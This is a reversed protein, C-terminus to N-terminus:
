ARIAERKEMPKGENSSGSELSKSPKYSVEQGPSPCSVLGEEQSVKM